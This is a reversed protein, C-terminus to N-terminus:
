LIMGGIRLVYEANSSWVFLTIIGCKDKAEVVVSFVESGDEIFDICRVALPKNLNDQLYAYRENHKSDDCILSHPLTMLTITALPQNKKTCM